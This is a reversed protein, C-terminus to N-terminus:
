SRQKQMYAILDIEGLALGCRQAIEQQDLGEQIM